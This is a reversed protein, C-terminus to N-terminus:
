KGAYLEAYLRAYPNTGKAPYKGALVEIAPGQSASSNFGFIKRPIHFLNEVALTNGFHVLATLKGPLALANIVAEIRRTLCDTGMYPASVCYSVFVVEDYKSAATLVRDNDRPTPFEPILEIDSHPFHEKIARITINANYDAVVSVEESVEGDSFNQPIEVVFLRKTETDIAPSLGKDCDATICDKAAMAIIEAANEPVPVPNKAEQACYQELAMIRRVAEDLREDTIAGERYSELMMEYVQRTPTRYNPLLIDAGAMFCKAYAEKEGYTQLIAIMALSDSYIVGDFGLDRIIDIVKKSLSAPNKPDIADCIQHGVMIAPLLGEKMLELYPVLITNRLEDETQTSHPAVMHSDLPLGKEGPYHKGTAHFGYSAFTKYIEKTVGLVAEPTDGASRSLTIPRNELIVDIVPGWCGNFGAEKAEKALAAAFTRTYAPNNAAALTSLPIKPMKSKPYGLEMDNVMIVPYDAAERFLKVLKPRRVDDFTMQIAGCAQNKVLELTFDIDDQEYMRRCCLIRGLKQEPTMQELTLM